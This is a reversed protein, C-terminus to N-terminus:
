LHGHACLTHGPFRSMVLHSSTGAGPATLQPLMCMSHLAPIHRYTDQRVQYAQITENLQGEAADDASSAKEAAVVDEPKAVQPLVVRWVAYACTTTSGHTTSKGRHLM